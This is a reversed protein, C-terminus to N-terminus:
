GEKIEMVIWSIIILLAVLAGFGGIFGITPKIFATYVCCCFGMILTIAFFCLVVCFAWKSVFDWIKKM